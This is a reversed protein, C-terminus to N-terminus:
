GYVIDEPRHDPIFAHVLCGMQSDLIQVDGNL